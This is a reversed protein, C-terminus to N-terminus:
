GYSGWYSEVTKVAENYREPNRRRWNCVAAKSVGFFLAVAKVMTKPEEEDIQMQRAKGNSVIKKYGSCQVVIGNENRAGKPLKGINVWSCGKGAKDCGWCKSRNKGQM